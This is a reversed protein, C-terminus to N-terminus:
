VSFATVSNIHFVLLSKITNLVKLLSQFLLDAPDTKAPPELAQSSAKVLMALSELHKSIFVKEERGKVEVIIRKGKGRGKGM